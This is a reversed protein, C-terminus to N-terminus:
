GLGPDFSNNKPNIWNELVQQLATGLIKTKRSLIKPTIELLIKQPSLWSNKVRFYKWLIYKHEEFDSGSM